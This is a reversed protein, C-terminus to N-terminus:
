EKGDRGAEPWTARVVELWVDEAVGVAAAVTALRGWAVRAVEDDAHDLDTFRLKGRQEIVAIIRGRIERARRDGATRCADPEAAFDVLPSNDWPPLYFERRLAEADGILFARITSTTVRIGPVVPAPLGLKEAESKPGSPAGSRDRWTAKEAASTPESARHRKM